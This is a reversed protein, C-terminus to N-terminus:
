AMWAQFGGELYGIVYDYGVRALRTIVEEERGEDAILLLQQKVDPIMAGVWPAFQGDVGINISNYTDKFLIANKLNKAYPLVFESPGWINNQDFDESLNLILYNANIKFLWQSLLFIERLANTEVWSRNTHLILRRDEGYNQLSILGRHCDIVFTKVSWDNTDIQHGLYHTDLCDDFVTIRELPPVGIFVLDNNWDIENSLSILLHQVTNWSNVPRSCNFIVPIKLELATLGWFSEEPSVCINPTTYSDGFVWLKSYKNPL